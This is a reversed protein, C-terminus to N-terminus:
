NWAFGSVCGVQKLWEVLAVSLVGDVSVVLLASSDSISMQLPGSRSEGSGWGLELGLLLWTLTFCPKKWGGCVKEGKAM